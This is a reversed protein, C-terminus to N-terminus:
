SHRHCTNLKGTANQWKRRCVDSLMNWTHNLWTWVSVSTNLLSKSSIACSLQGGAVPIRLPYIHQEATDTGFQQNRYVLMTHLRSLRTRVTYILSISRTSCPSANEIGLFHHVLNFMYMSHVSWTWVRIYLTCCTYLCTYKIGFEYTM